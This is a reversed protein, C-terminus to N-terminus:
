EGLLKWCSSSSDFGLLTSSDLSMMPQSGIARALAHPPRSTHPMHAAVGLSEESCVMPRRYASPSRSRKPRAREQTRGRWRLLTSCVACNLAAAAAKGRGSVQSQMAMCTDLLYMKVFVVDGGMGASWDRKFM